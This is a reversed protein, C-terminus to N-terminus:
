VNTVEGVYTIIVRCPASTINTNAGHGGLAYRSEGKVATVGTQVVVGELNSYAQTGHSSTGSGQNNGNGTGSWMGNDYIEAKVDCKEFNANGFPNDIVYRNSIGVTGLDIIKRNSKTDLLGTTLVASSTTPTGTPTLTATFTITTADVITAVSWTGNPANTTAVLGSVYIVDSVLLNHPTSTIITITTGVYSWSSISLSQGIATDRLLNVSSANDDVYKKNAVQYDSSPASSPTIPFSSFTKIGAITQNGSKNVTNTDLPIIAWNGTISGVPDDGTVGDNQVQYYLGDSGQVIDSVTQTAIASTNYTFTNVYKGKVAKVLQELDDDILSYGASTVLNFINFFNDNWYKALYTTGATLGDRDKATGDPNGGDIEKFKQM